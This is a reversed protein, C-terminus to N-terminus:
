IGPWTVTGLAMPGPRVMGLLLCWFESCATGSKVDRVQSAGVQCRVVGEESLISCSVTVRCLGVGCFCVM